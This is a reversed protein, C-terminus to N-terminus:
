RRNLKAESVERLFSAAFMKRMFHQTRREEWKAPSEDDGQEIEAELAKLETMMKKTLMTPYGTGPQTWTFAWQDLWSLQRQWEGPSRAQELRQEYMFMTESLATVYHSLRQGANKSYDLWHEPDKEAMTKAWGSLRKQENNIRNEYWTRKNAERHYMTIGLSNIIKSFKSRDEETWQGIEETVPMLERGLFGILELVQQNRPAGPTYVKDGKWDRNWALSIAAHPLGSLNAYLPQWLGRLLEDESGLMMRGIVKWPEAFPGYMQIVDEGEGEGPKRKRIYRYYEEWTYGFHAAVAATILYMGFIRALQRKYKMPHALLEPFLRYWMATKYAPTLFIRGSWKGITRRMVSYDAMFLRTMYVAEARTHGEKELAMATGVRAARDLWWTLQRNMNLLANHDTPRLMRWIFTGVGEGPKMEANKLFFRGVQSNTMAAANLSDRIDDLFSEQIMDEPQAFLDMAQYARYTDSKKLAEDFGKKWYILGRFGAAALSQPINNMTMRLFQYFKFAKIVANVRDYMRGATTVGGYGETFDRIAQALEPRVLWKKGFFKYRPRTETTIKGNEKMVKVTEEGVKVRSRSYADIGPVEEWNETEKGMLQRIISEAENKTHASGVQEGKDDIVKYRRDGATDVRISYDVAKALEPNSKVGEHFENVMHKHLVYSYVDALAVRPDMEVPLGSDLLDQITLYERGLVREPTQRLKEKLGGGEVMMEVKSALQFNITRHSYRLGSLLEITKGLTQIEEVRAARTLPNKIVDIDKKLDDIRGELQKIKSEPWQHGGMEKWMNAIVQYHELFDKGVEKLHEPLPKSEDEQWFTFARQDEPDQLVNQYMGLIADRAVSQGYGKSAFASRLAEHVALFGERLAHGKEFGTAASHLFSKAFNWLPTFPIGSGLTTTQEETEARTEPDGEHDDVDKQAKSKKAKVLEQVAARTDKDMEALAAQQDKEPLESLADAMLEYKSGEEVLKEQERLKAEYMKRQVVSPKRVGAKEGLEEMEKETEQHIQAIVDKGVPEGPRVVPQAAVQQEAVHAAWEDPTMQKETEEAERRAQLAALDAAEQEAAVEVPVEGKKLEELKGILKEIMAVYDQRFKQRAKSKHGYNANLEKRAFRLDSIGKDLNGSELAERFMGQVSRGGFHSTEFDSLDAGKKGHKEEIERLLRAGAEVAKSRQEPPLQAQRPQAAVTATGSTPVPARPLVQGRKEALLREMATAPRAVGKDVIVEPREAVKPPAVPAPPKEVKRPAAPEPRVKTEARQKEYSAIQKEIKAARDWDEAHRALKLDTKLNSILSDYDLTVGGKFKVGVSTPKAAPEPAPAPVPKPKEIPAPKPTEVKAAAPAGLKGVTEIMAKVRAAQKPLKVKDKDQVRGVADIAAEAIRILEERGIKGAKFAKRTEDLQQDIGLGSTVKGLKAIRKDVWENKPSTKAVEAIREEASIPKVVPTPAPVAVKAKAAALRARATERPAAKGAKAREVVAPAASVAEALAQEGRLKLKAPPPVKIGEVKNVRFAHTYGGRAEPTGEVTPSIGARKLTEGFTKLQEADAVMVLDLGKETAMTKAAELLPEANGKTAIEDVVLRKSSPEIAYTLKGGTEKDTIAGKKVKVEKEVHETQEAVKALAEEGSEYEPAPTAEKARVEEKAEAELRRSRLESVVLKAAEDNVRKILGEKGAIPLGREVMELVTGGYQRMKPDKSDTAVLKANAYLLGGQANSMLAGKIGAPTHGVATLIALSVGARKVEEAGDQILKAVDVDKIELDNAAMAALKTGQEVVFQCGEEGTERLWSNGVKKAFGIMFPMVSRRIAEKGAPTMKKIQAMEITASPIAALYAWTRAERPPIGAEVMDDMLDPQIQATWFAISAAIGGPPGGAVAGGAGAAVGAGLSPLMGAVDYVGQEFASNAAIPDGSMYARYVERRIRAAERAVRRQEKLENAAAREGTTIQLADPTGTGLDELMGVLGVKMTSALSRERSDPLEGAIGTFQEEFNNQLRDVDRGLAEWISGYWTRAKPESQEWMFHYLAQKDEKNMEMIRNVALDLNEGNAYERAEKWLRRYKGWSKEVEEYIAEAAVGPMVEKMRDITVKKPEEDLFDRRAWRGMELIKTQQIDLERSWKFVDDLQDDVPNYESSAWDLLEPLEAPYVNPGTGSKRAVTGMYARPKQPPSLRATGPQLEPM